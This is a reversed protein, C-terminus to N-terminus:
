RTQHQIQSVYCTRQKSTMLWKRMPWMRKKACLTSWSDKLKHCFKGFLRTCTQSDMQFNPVKIFYCLGMAEGCKLWNDHIYVCVKWCVAMGFIQLGLTFVAAESSLLEGINQPTPEFGVVPGKSCTKGWLRDGTEMLFLFRFSHGFQPHQSKQLGVSPSVWLAASRENGCSNRSSKVGM